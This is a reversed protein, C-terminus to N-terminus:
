LTRSGPSGAGTRGGGVFTMDWQGRMGHLTRQLGQLVLSEDDVFLLRSRKAETKESNSNM